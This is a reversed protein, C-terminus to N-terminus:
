QVSVLRRRAGKSEVVSVIFHRFTYAGTVIMKFMLITFPTEIGIMRFLLTTFPKDIFIQRFLLNKNFHTDTGITWFLITIPKAFPIDICKDNFAIATM